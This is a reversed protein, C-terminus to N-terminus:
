YRFFFCVQKYEEPINSIGFSPAETKPNPYIGACQSIESNSYCAMTIVSDAIKVVCIGKDIDAKKLAKWCVQEIDAKTAEESYKERKITDDQGETEMADTVDFTYEGETYEGGEVIVDAYRSNVLTFLTKAVKNNSKLLEDSNELVTSSSDEDETDSSSSGCSTCISFTVGLALIMALLKKM